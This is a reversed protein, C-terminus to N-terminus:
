RDAWLESGRAAKPGVVAKRVGGREWRLEEPTDIEGSKGPGKEKVVGVAM